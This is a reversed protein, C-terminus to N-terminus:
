PRAVTSPQTRDPSGRSTMLAVLLLGGTFLLYALAIRVALSAFELNFSGQLPTWNILLLPIKISAAFLMPVALRNPTFGGLERFGAWGRAAIGSFAPLLLMPVVAWTLLWLIPQLVDHVTKPPVPRQLKLTLYSAVSQGSATLWAAVNQVGWYLVGAIIALLILPVLNRHVGGSQRFFAFSTGHLWLTGILLALLLVFSLALLPTSSEGIGLWYYAIGLLLANGILHTIFLSRGTFM